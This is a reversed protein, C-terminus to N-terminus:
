PKQERLTHLFSFKQESESIFIRVSDLSCFNSMQASPKEVSVAHFGCNLNFTVFIVKRANLTCHLYLVNQFMVSVSNLVYIKSRLNCKKSTTTTTLSMM